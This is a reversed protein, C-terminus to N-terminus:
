YLFFCLPTCSSCCRDWFVSGQPVRLVVNILNIRCGDMVVYESRISRFQTLVSLVFGGIHLSCLKFIIVQQNFGDIDGSFDIQVIRAKQGSELAYQLIHSVCFLMVFTSVKGLHSSPPQFCM